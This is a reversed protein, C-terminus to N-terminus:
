DSGVLWDGFNCKEAVYFATDRSGYRAGRGLLVKTRFGKFFLTCLRYLVMLSRFCRNTSCTLATANSKM